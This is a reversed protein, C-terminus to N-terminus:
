LLDFNKASFSTCFYSLDNITLPVNKPKFFSLFGGIESADIDLISLSGSPLSLYNRKLIFSSNKRILLNKHNFNIKAFFGDENSFDLKSVKGGIIYTTVFADWNGYNGLNDTFSGEIKFARFSSKNTYNHETITTRKGNNVIIYDESWSLSTLLLSFILILKQMYNNHLYCRQQILKKNSKLFLIM